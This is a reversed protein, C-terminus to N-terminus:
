ENIEVHDVDETDELVEPDTTFSTDPLQLMELIENLNLTDKDELHNISEIRIQQLHILYHKQYADLNEDAQIAAIAKRRLETQMVRMSAREAHDVEGFLDQAMRVMRWAKRDNMGKWRAILKRVELPTKPDKYSTLLGYINELQKRLEHDQDSLEFVEDHDLQQVMDQMYWYKIKDLKTTPKFQQLAKRDYKKISM